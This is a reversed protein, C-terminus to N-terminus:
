RLDVQRAAPGKGIELAYELVGEQRDERQHEDTRAGPEDAHAREDGIDNRFVIDGVGFEAADVAAADQYAVDHAIGQHRLHGAEREREPEDEVARHDGFDDETVGAEAVQENPGHIGTVVTQHYADGRHRDDRDSKRGKGDVENQRKEIRPYPRASGINRM